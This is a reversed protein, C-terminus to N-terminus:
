RLIERGTMALAVLHARTRAGLKGMANEIHSKVTSPAVILEDAIQPGSRGRAVLNVVDRERETLAGTGGATPDVEAESGPPQWVFLSRLGDETETSVASFSCRVASGDSRVLAMAGNWQSRELFQAWDEQVRAADEPAVVAELLTGLLDERRRGLLECVADNVARRRRGVSLLEMPNSSREFATEFLRAWGSDDSVGSSEV